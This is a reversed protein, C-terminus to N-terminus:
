GARLESPRLGLVRGFATTLHSHSAFGLDTAVAALPDGGDIVRLAALRVRLQTRYGSITM